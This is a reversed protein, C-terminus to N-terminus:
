NRANFGLFRQVWGQGGAALELSEGVHAGEHDVAQVSVARVETRSGWRSALSSSLAAGTTTIPPEIHPAHSFRPLEYADFNRDLV